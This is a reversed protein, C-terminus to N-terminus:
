GRLYQKAFWQFTRIMGEEVPVVPQWGLEEKAKTTDYYVKKSKYKLQARSTVGKKVLNLSSAMEYGTTALYPILYPLPMIHVDVGTVEAFKELYEKVTVEGDDVFNYAQGVAEEAVAAKCIGDVLNDVYILPLVNDGKGIPFFWKGQYKYGLHPFFVRGLPGIVLGPRLITAKLGDDHCAGFVLKESEIKTDVYPGMEKPHKQYPSDETIPANKKTSLLKYVVPTSFHVLRDANNDLAARILTKTAEVTTQYHDEWRNSSTAAGAHFIVKMGKAAQYVVETDALDGEVIAVDSDRLRGVHMSNPRVLVRVGIGESQLRRVLHTGIFGTAGTVLVTPKQRYQKAVQACVRPKETNVVPTPWVKNILEVVWVAKDLSVPAEGGNRVAVYFRSIVPSIGGSKDLRGTAIKYANSSFGKLYQTGLQFSSLGRAAARPLSSKTRVTLMNSFLDAHAIGKTGKVTLSVVEPKENLSISVYGTVRNSKVLVKLEDQWGPPVMGRNWGVSQVEQVDPLFEALLSAPHAMFDLLPGGKLQYFWHNGEAGAELIAPHRNPDYAFHAEVSVVEGLKGTAVTALARQVVQEFVMSHDVCLYVGKERATQAMLRANALTLAMPKEVLVHCGHNMAMISLQAHYQPPVLVHVLNPKREEIMEEADQYYSQAGLDTALVQARVKDYDAVGVIETDPQRLILRGHIQAIQGAGIIGVKMRYDNKAM